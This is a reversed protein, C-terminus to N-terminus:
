GAKKPQQFARIQHEECWSKSGSPKACYVTDAGAADGIIWQCCGYKGGVGTLMLPPPYQTPPPPVPKPRPPRPKPPPKPPRPRANRIPSPRSPLELRRRKGVIANKSINLAAAIESVSKGDLWMVRLREVKEDTWPNDNM